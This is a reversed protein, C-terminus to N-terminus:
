GAGLEQDIVDTFKDITQAGSLPRGNIFFAPTGDVGAESGAAIDAKVAAAEKGSDLCADFKASDIGLDKAYGKIQTVSLDKQNAFMKEYLPWFKGQENACLAAEAAKQANEHMPLPFERFVFRVKGEYKKLVEEVIPTARGCFPCQFDSFEVITVKADAPGRSPGTAAVQVRRVPLTVKVKYKARLEDFFVKARDAAKERKLQNVIQPKVQELELQPYQPKVVKEYFEQVQADTPEPAKQTIEQKILDEKSVGRAKAEMDVLKEAILEDLGDERLKQIKEQYDSTAKQVEDHIQDELEKGTVPTGNITAVTLNSPLSAGTETSPTAHATSGGADSSLSSSQKPSACAVVALVVLLSRTNSLM